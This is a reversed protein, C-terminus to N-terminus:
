AQRLKRWLAEIVVASVDDEHSVGADKKLPENTWVQLSNRVFLGLRFHLEILDDQAMAALKKLDDDPLVSELWDVAEATPPCQNGDCM